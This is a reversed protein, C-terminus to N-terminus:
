DNGNKGDGLGLMFLGSLMIVFPIIFSSTTNILVVGVCGIASIVSGFRTIKNM